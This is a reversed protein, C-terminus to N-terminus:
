RGEKGTVKNKWRNKQPFLWQWKFEKRGYPYKEGAAEPMAVEGWGDKLDLAHIKKVEKIHAKLECILKQPLIVHRDKDGKGHRVIIENRDFDVDLIRLSLCENLRMGTGYLLKAILKKVGSLNEIVRNVEERSFVVPIRPKKKAHIVSGLESVPTNKVFRFYFLLAALAQNQTSASVNKKVALNRLFQNIKIENLNSFNNKNVLLFDKIWKKYRTKTHDSYHRVTLLEELKKLQSEIYSGTDSQVQQVTKQQVDNEEINFLGTEYINQLLQNASERSNPILWIKEEGNWLRDPITRVVDLIQPTFGSSFYVATRSESFPYITITM